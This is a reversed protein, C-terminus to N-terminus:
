TRAKDVLLAAGSDITVTSSALPAPLHTKGYDLWWTGACKYANTACDEPKESSTAPDFGSERAVELWNEGDTSRQWQYTVADECVVQM